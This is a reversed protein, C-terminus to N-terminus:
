LGTQKMQLLRILRKAENFRDVAVWFVTRDKFPDNFCNRESAYLSGIHLHARGLNPNDKLAELHM